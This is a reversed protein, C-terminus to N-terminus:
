QSQRHFYEEVYGKIRQLPSIPNTYGQTDGLSASSEFISTCGKIIVSLETSGDASNKIDYDAVEIEENKIRLLNRNDVKLISIESM